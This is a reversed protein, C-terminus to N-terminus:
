VTIFEDHLKLFNDFNTESVSHYIHFLRGLKTTNNVALLVLM